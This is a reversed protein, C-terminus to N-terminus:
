VCSDNGQESVHYAFRTEAVTKTVQQSQGVNTLSLGDSGNQDVDEDFNSVDEGHHKESAFYEMNNHVRNTHVESTAATSEHREQVSGNESDLNHLLNQITSFDLNSAASTDLDTTAVSPNQVNTKPRVRCEKIHAVYNELGTVLTRCALCIHTDFADAMRDFLVSM